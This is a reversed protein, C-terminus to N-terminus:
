TEGGGGFFFGPGSIDNFFGILKTKCDIKYFKNRFSRIAIEELKHNKVRLVKDMIKMLELSIKQM